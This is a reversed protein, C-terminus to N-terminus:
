ARPLLGTRVWRRSHSTIDQCVREGTVGTTFCRTCWWAGGLDHLVTGPQGRDFTLWASDMATATIETFANM